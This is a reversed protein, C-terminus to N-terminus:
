QMLETLMRRCGVSPQAAARRGSMAGPSPLARPATGPVRDEPLGPVSLAPRRRARAVPKRVGTYFPVEERVHRRATPPACSACSTSSATCSTPRSPSCGSTTASRSRPSPTPGCTPTAAPWAHRARRAHGPAGRRAAPVVRLVARVPLRLRLPAAGRRRPVGPHPQQQVGGAPAAGDAVVGADLHRGLATRRLRSYAEQLAEPTEAHWWVMLDADARLGPSTTSAASSSTRAPWSTSCRARGRRRGGARQDDGLPRALRFVSWM